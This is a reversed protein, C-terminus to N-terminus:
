CMTDTFFDHLCAQVQVTDSREAKAPLAELRGTLASILEGLLGERCTALINDTVPNQQQHTAAENCCTYFSQDERQHSRLNMALDALPVATSVVAKHLAQLCASLEGVM